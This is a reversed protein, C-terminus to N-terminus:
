KNANIKHIHFFTEEITLYQGDPLPGRAPAAVVYGYGDVLVYYPFAFANYDSWIPNNSDVKFTNWPITEIYNEVNEKSYTKNPYISIFEVDGKYAEYLKILAEIELSSKLMSPDYFHLYLHKRNFSSLSYLKGISNKIFFDPANGGIVLQTLRLKLNKAIIAHEPFMSGKSVSDLITIINTQPFQKSYFEEGLSKLMVLERIRLNELILSNHLARMFLSPSSQLVAQYVKEDTEYDLRPILRDYFANFYEMYADNNYFVPNNHLYFAYKEEKKRQGAFQINDFTAISYMVYAQLFSSTDKSYYNEVASKFTKLESDFEEPKVNKTYFKESMFEDCWRQFALIKYNIDNSDLNFFTLEILNGTEKYPQYPDNGPIYIEYKGGPQVYMYSSNNNAHINIRQIETIDFNLYFTSDPKVVATAMVSEYDSIYDVIKNFSITKGVYSPAFGYISIQNQGFSTLTFLLVVISYFKFKM